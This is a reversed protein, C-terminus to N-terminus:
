LVGGDFGADRLSGLMTNDSGDAIRANPFGVARAASLIAENDRDAEQKRYKEYLDRHEKIPCHSNDGVYEFCACQPEDPLLLLKKTYDITPIM